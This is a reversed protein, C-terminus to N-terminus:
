IYENEFRYIKIINDYTPEIMKNSYIGQFKLEKM